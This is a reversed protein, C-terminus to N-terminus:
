EVESAAAALRQDASKTTAHEAPSREPIVEKGLAIDPLSKVLESFLEPNSTRLKLFADKSAPVAKKGIIADVDAAAKEAELAKHQARLAELEKNQEALQRELEATHEREKAAADPKSKESPEIPLQEAKETKDMIGSEAAEAATTTENQDPETTALRELLARESAHAKASLAVADANAPLPVVSIEVLENPDEPSGLRYGILNGEEDRMKIVAGPRFGVSAARLTKQRIAQWVREALPSARDDSFQPEFELRGAVVETSLSHGVPILDAPTENWSGRNHNFLVVPNQNYRELDWHQEVIDGYSDVSNTSAIMRVSRKEDDLSEARTELGFTRYIVDSNTQKSM